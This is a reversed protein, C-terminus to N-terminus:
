NCDENGILFPNVEGESLSEFGIDCIDLCFLGIFEDIGLLENLLLLIVAIV